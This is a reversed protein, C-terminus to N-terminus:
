IESQMDDKYFVVLEHQDRLTEYFTSSFLAYKTLASIKEVDAWLGVWYAVMCSALLFCATNFVNYGSKNFVIAFIIMIVYIPAKTRVRNGALGIGFFATLIGFLLWWNGSYIAGVLCWVVPGWISINQWWEYRMKAKGVLLDSHNGVFYMEVFGGIYYKVFEDHSLFAILHAKAEFESKSISM